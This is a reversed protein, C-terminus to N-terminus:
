EQGEGAGARREGIRSSGTVWAGSQALVEKSSKLPLGDVEGWLGDGEVGGASIGSMLTMETV